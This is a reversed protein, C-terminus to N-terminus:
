ARSVLFPSAVADAAAEALLRHTAIEAEDEEGGVLAREVARLQATAAQLEAARQTAREARRRAVDAARWELLRALM